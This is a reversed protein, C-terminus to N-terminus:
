LTEINLLTTGKHQTILLMSKKHCCECWFTIYTGDKDTELKEQHLYDEKCHACKLVDDNLEIRM